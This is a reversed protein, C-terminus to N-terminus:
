LSFPQGSRYILPQTDGAPYITAAGRGYVQWEGGPQGVITTKEDVGLVRSQPLAAQLKSVWQRGFTNFHPAFVTDAVLSLGPKVLGSGPTYVQQMLVMAGASSGALVAGNQYAAYIAQWVPSGQLTQLYFQPDGGAIYVLRAESLQRAATASQSQALETFLFQVVKPAGLKEFWRQGNQAARPGGGDNAIVVIAVPGSRSSTQSLAFRDAEEYGAQFEGGGALLILGAM